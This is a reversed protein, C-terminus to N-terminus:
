RLYSCSLEMNRLEDYGLNHLIIVLIEAPLDLLELQSDLKKSRHDEGRSAKSNWELGYTM